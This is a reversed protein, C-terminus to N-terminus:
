RVLTALRANFRAEFTALDQGFAQRFNAVRDDSTAFLRFYDLAAPLGHREVLYEAALMAYGYLAEQGFRQAHDVWEPFTIMRSLPPLRSVRADRLRNLLVRQADRRTTFGLRVLVEVEVWEAFGERLWQDSTGRTGGSFEYQLTHTLEHALLAVRFLWGVEEMARDNILVRRFGSVATLTEATQQAFAPTYGTAQLAARFADRDAHFHLSAQLAPLGLQGTMVAAISAVAQEYTDIWEGRGAANDPGSEVEIIRPWTGSTACASVSLLVAVATSALRVNSGTARKM